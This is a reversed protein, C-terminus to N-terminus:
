ARHRPTRSIEHRADRDGHEARRRTRGGSSWGARIVRPQSREDRGLPGRDELQVGGLRGEGARPAFGFPEHPTPDGEFGRELAGLRVQRGGAGRELRGVRPDRREEAAEVRVAVRLRDRHQEARAGERAHQGPDVLELARREPIPIERGPRPAVGANELLLELAERARLLMERGGLAAGAGRERRARGRCALPARRDRPDAAAPV